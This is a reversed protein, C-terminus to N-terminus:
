NSAMSRSISFNGIKLYTDPGKDNEPQHSFEIRGKSIQELSQNGASALADVWDASSAKNRGSFVSRLLGALKNPKKDSAFETFQESATAPLSETNWEIRTIETLVSPLLISNRTSIKEIAALQTQMANQEIIRNPSPEIGKLPGAPATNQQPLKIFKPAPLSDNQVPVPNEAAPTQDVNVAQQNEPSRSSFNNWVWGALMAVFCAAAAYRLWLIQVRNKYLKSKSPFSVIESKLVTHQFARWQQQLDSRSSTIEHLDNEDREGELVSVALTDFADLGFDEKKLHSFKGDSNPKADMEPTLGQETEPVLEPHQELFSCLADMAQADLNGEQAQLLYWGINGINVQEKM